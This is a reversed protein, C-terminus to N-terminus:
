FKKANEKRRDVCVKCRQNNPLAVNNCNICLGKFKRVVKYYKIYGNYKTRCKKCTKFGPNRKTGCKNCRRELRCYKLWERRQEKSDIKPGSKKKSPDTDNAHQLCLDVDVYKGWAARFYRIFREKRQEETESEPIRRLKGLFRRKANAIKTRPSEYKAVKGGVKYLIPKKAVDLHLIKIEKGFTAITYFVAKM